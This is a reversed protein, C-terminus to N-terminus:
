PRELQRPRVRHSIRAARAEDHEGGGDAYMTGVGICSPAYGATCARQFRALAAAQDDPSPLAYYHDLAAAHCAIADGSACAREHEAAEARPSPEHTHWIHAHGHVTIQAWAPAPPMASSAATASGLVAAGATLVAITVIARVYAPVVLENM